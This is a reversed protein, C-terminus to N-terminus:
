RSVLIALMGAPMEDGPFLRLFPANAFAHAGIIYGHFTGNVTVWFSQVGPSAEITLVGGGWRAIVIGGAPPLSEWAGSMVSPAPSPASPALPLLVPDDGHDVAGCEAISTRV